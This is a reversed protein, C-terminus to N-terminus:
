AAKMNNSTGNKPTRPFPIVDRINAIGTVFCCSREAGTWVRILRQVLSVHLGSVVVYRENSYEGQYAGHKDYDAERESGGIIEGIKPFFMWLVFTRVWTQEAEYLISQDKKQYDTLIVPRKFHDEVLFREHRPLLILAGISLSNLSTVKLLPMKWM